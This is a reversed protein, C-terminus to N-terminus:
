FIRKGSVYYTDSSGMGGNRYELYISDKTIFSGSFIFSNSSYDIRGRYLIGFTDIEPEMFHNIITDDMPFLTEWYKFRILTDADAVKSVTSQYFVTDYSRSNPIWWHYKVVKFQFDGCFQDRYDTTDIDLDINPPTEECQIIPLWIVIIILIYLKRQKM